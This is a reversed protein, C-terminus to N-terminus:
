GREGQAASIVPIAASSPKKEAAASVDNLHVSSLARSIEARLDAASSIPTRLLGSTDQQARRPFTATIANDLEEREERPIQDPCNLPAIVVSPPDEIPDVPSLLQRYQAKTLTWPDVLVIIRDNRTSTHIRPILNNDAPLEEYGFKYETAIAEAMEGVTEITPPNFPRWYCSRGSSYRQEIPRGQFEDRKGAVFVFKARYKGTPEFASPVDEFNSVFPYEPIAPYAAGASQLAQAFANVCKQYQVKRQMKM